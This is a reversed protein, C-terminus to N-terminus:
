SVMEIALGLDYMQSFTGRDAYTRKTRLRGSAPGPQETMRGDTTTNGMQTIGRCINRVLCLWPAGRINENIALDKDSWANQWDKPKLREGQGGDDGM